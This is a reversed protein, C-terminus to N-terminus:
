ALRKDKLLDRLFVNKEGGIKEKWASYNRDDTTTWEEMQKPTPKAKRNKELWPYPQSKYDPYLEKNFVREDVLFVVASLMMGLDPETFAAHKIDNDRLSNLITDLSGVYETEKFGHRVLQGNCSTGGNLIIFTKWENAFYQYEPTNMHKIGYEVVAHGFQIGKQIDSINYPVFGYMRLELFKEPKRPMSNPKVTFKQIYLMFEEATLQYSMFRDGDAYGVLGLPRINQEFCWEYATKKEM